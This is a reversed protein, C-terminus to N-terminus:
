DHGPADNKGHGRIAGEDGDDSLNEHVVDDLGGPVNEHVADKIEKDRAAESVIGKGFPQGENASEALVPSCFFLMSSIAVFHSLKM